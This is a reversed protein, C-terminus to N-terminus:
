VEDTIFGAEFHDPLVAPRIASNATWMTIRLTDFLISVVINLYFALMVIALGTLTVEIVQRIRNERPVM